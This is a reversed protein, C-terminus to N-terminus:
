VNPTRSKFLINLKKIGAKCEGIGYRHHDCYEYQKCESDTLCKGILKLPNKVSLDRKVLEKKVNIEKTDIFNGQKFQEIKDDCKVLLVIFIVKYLFNFSIKTKYM